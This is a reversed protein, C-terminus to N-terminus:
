QNGLGVAVGIVLLRRRVILQTAGLARGCSLRMLPTPVPAGFQQQLLREAVFQAMGLLYTQQLHLQGILQALRDDPAAQEAQAGRDPLGAARPSPLL